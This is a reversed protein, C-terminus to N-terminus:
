TKPKTIRADAHQGYTRTEGQNLEHVTLELCTELSTKAKSRSSQGRGCAAAEALSGKQGRRSHQHRAISSFGEGLSEHSLRTRSAPAPNRWALWLLFRLTRPSKFACLFPGCHCRGVRQIYNGGPNPSFKNPRTDIDPRGRRLDETGIFGLRTSM